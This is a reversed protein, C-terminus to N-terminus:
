ENNLSRFDPRFSQVEVRSSIDAEFGVCAKKVADSHHSAVYNSFLFLFNCSMEHTYERAVQILRRLSDQDFDEACILCFVDQQNESVAKFVVPIIPSTLFEVPLVSGTRSLEKDIYNLSTEPYYYEFYEFNSKCYQLSDYLFGMQKNDIVSLTQFSCESDLRSNSIKSVVDDYTDENSSLWFLVGFDRKQRYSGVLELQSKKVESNKYCELTQTLDEAHKKFTSKPNNEYPKDTHKVSVVASVTASSELPSKYCFLHDIGHTERHKKKSEARAHKQPKMCAISQNSLASNWGILSFFGDVINEGIEGIKKSKEGM